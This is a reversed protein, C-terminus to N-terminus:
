KVVVAGVIPDIEISVTKKNNWVVITCGEIGGTTNVNLKYKGKSVEGYLPDIVKINVESPIDEHSRDEIGFLKSDLDIVITKVEGSIKALSRAHRITASIKKATSNLRVSPLMNTFLVSSLGFILSILLMVIILELLTFGARRSYPTPPLSYPIPQLNYTTPQVYKQFKFNSIISTTLNQM